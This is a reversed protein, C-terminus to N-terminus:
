LAHGNTLHQCLPLGPLRGAPFPSEPHPQLSIVQYVFIDFSYDFFIVFFLVATASLAPILLSVKELITLHLRGTYAWSTHEM